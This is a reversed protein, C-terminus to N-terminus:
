NPSEPTIRRWFRYRSAPVVIREVLGHRELKDLERWVYINAYPTDPLGAAVTVEATTLVREAANILAVHVRASLHPFDARSM